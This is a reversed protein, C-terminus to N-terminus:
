WKGYEKFFEERMVVKTYDKRMKAEFPNAFEAEWDVKTVDFQNDYTQSNRIFQGVKGPTGLSSRFAGFHQVLSPVVAFLKEKRLQLWAALRDDENRSEKAYLDLKAVFDRMLENPYITCQLWFNIDTALVHRGQKHCDLYDSNTPNYLCIIRDEPAHELIYNVKELINRDFTVDDQIIIRHTGERGGGMTLAQVYNKWVGLSGDDFSIQVPIGLPKASVEILKKLYKGEQERKYVNMIVIQSLSNM